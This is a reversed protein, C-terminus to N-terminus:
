REVEGGDRADGDGGAAGAEVGAQDAAVPELLDGADRDVGVDGAFQAVAGGRHGRATDAQQEALGAFGGVGHGREIEHAGLALM